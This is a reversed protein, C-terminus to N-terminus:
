GVDKVTKGLRVLARIGAQIGRVFHRKQEEPLDEWLPLGEYGEGQAQYSIRGVENWVPDIM